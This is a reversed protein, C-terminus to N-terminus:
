ALGTQAVSQREVVARGLFQVAPQRLSDLGCGSPADEIRM